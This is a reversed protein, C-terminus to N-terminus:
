VPDRFDWQKCSLQILDERDQVSMKNKRVAEEYEDYIQHAIQKRIAEMMNQTHVKAAKVGFAIQNGKSVKLVDIYIETCKEILNKCYQTDFVLDNMCFSNIRLPSPVKVNDNNTKGRIHAKIESFEYTHGDPALMPVSCIDQSIPCLFDNLYDDTNLFNKFVPYAKDVISKLRWENYHDSIAISIRIRKDIHKKILYGGVGLGSSIGLTTGPIGGLPGALWGLSGLSGFIFVSIGMVRANKAADQKLVILTTKKAVDKYEKRNEKKYVAQRPRENPGCYTRADKQAQGCLVIAEYPLDTDPVDVGCPFITGGMNATSM